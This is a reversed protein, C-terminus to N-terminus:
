AQPAEPSASDPTPQQDAVIPAPDPTVEAIAAKIRTSSWRKDIKVGLVYAQDYLAPRDDDSGAPDGDNQENFLLEAAENEVLVSPKGETHLWKPYEIFEYAM